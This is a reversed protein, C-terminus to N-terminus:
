AKEGLSVRERSYSEPSLQRLGRVVPSFRWRLKRMTSSALPTAASVRDWACIAGIQNNACPLFMVGNGANCADGSDPSCRRVGGVPSRCVFPVHGDDVAAQQALATRGIVAHGSAAGQARGATELCVIVRYFRM